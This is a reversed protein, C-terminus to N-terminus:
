APGRDYLVIGQAAIQRALLTGKRRWITTPIAVLDIPYKRPWLLRHAKDLKARTDSGDPLILALDVDSDTMAQGRATSGFLIVQDAMCAEGLRRATTQLDSANELGATSRKLDLAM